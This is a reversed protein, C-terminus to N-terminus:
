AVGVVAIGFGDRRDQEETSIPNFWVKQIWEVANGGDPITVWYVSGAPVMRRTAKSGKQKGDPGTEWDWGSIVQPRGTAAAFVRAGLMEKPIAGERFIAPTLLVVRFQRGNGKTIESPVDPFAEPGLTLFSIRREGGLCVAGARLREDPCHFGIAFRRPPFAAAGARQVFRVEETSYLLGEVATQSEPDIAVHVRVEKDLAGAGLEPVQDQEAPATLWKELEGWRWFAPGAVPKERPLDTLPCILTDMVLDTDVGSPTEKPGLRYRLLGGSAPRVFVCDRPAPFLWAPPGAEPLELLFPGKVPIERAESPKMTFSGNADLGIRTRVLGTVTSPWPFSLSRMEGSGEEVPRGDRLVLTDRPEIQWFGPVGEPSQSHAPTVASISSGRSASAGPRTVPFAKTHKQKNKKSM